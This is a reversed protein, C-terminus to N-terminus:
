KAARTRVRENRFKNRINSGFFHGKSEASLFNRFVEEAVEFYRYIAWSHFELELLRRSADYGASAIVSSQVPERKIAPPQASLDRAFSVLFVACLGAMFFGRRSIECARSPNKM